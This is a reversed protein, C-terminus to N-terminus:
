KVLSMTSSLVMGEGLNLTYIYMGSALGSADFQVTHRGASLTQNSLLSAVRQGTISYVTLSVQHAEPLEFSINTSPNFPNPYNQLLSVSGPVEGTFGGSEQGSTTNQFLFRASVPSHDSTTEFYDTIFDTVNEVRESGVILEEALQNTVIIHDIM